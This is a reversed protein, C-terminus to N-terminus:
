ECALAPIKKLSVRAAKFEKLGTLGGSRNVPLGCSGGSSSHQAQKALRYLQSAMREVRNIIDAFSTKKCFETDCVKIEDAIYTRLLKIIQARLLAATRIRNLAARSQGHCKIQLSSYGRISNYLSNVAKLVRRKNTNVKYVKCKEKCSTGDGGCVGCCDVQTGGNPIGACDLCANSGNCVGCLDLTGRCGPDGCPPQSSGGCIGCADKRAPGNPVGFCDRCTSNDGECVGCQDVRASGNPVGLCDIVPCSNPVFEGYGPGDGSSNCGSKIWVGALTKASNFTLEHGSLNDYKYDDSGDCYKLVVNSLAKTSAVTVATADSSFDASVRPLCNQAGAGSSWSFSFISLVLCVVCPAVSRKM